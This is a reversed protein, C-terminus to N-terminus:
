SRWKLGLQLTHFGYLIDKWLASDAQILCLSFLSNSSRSLLYSACWGTSDKKLIKWAPKALLAKNADKMQRIRLGGLKKILCVEEWNVLHIKRHDPTSGWIFDRTIKDFKQCVNAPLKGCQMTYVPITSIVSQALTTGYKLYKEEMRSISEGDQM